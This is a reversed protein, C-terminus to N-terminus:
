FGKRVIEQKEGKEMIYRAIKMILTWIQCTLEISADRLNQGQSKNRGMNIEKIETTTLIVKLLNRQTETELEFKEGPYCDM